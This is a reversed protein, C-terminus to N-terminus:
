YLIALRGSTDTIFMLFPCGCRRKL